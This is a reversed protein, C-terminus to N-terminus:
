ACVALLEVGVVATTSSQCPWGLLRPSPLCSPRRGGGVGTEAKLFTMCVQSSVEAAEGSVKFYDQTNGRLAPHEWFGVLLVQLLCLLLFAHPRPKSSLHNRFQKHVSYIFLVQKRGLFFLSPEQISNNGTEIFSWPLPCKVHRNLYFFTNLAVNTDVHFRYM